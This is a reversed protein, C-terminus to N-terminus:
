HAHLLTARRCNMARLAERTVADLPPAGGDLCLGLFFEQHAGGGPFSGGAGQRLQEVVDLHRLQAPGSCCVCGACLAAELACLRGGRQLNVRIGASVEAFSM